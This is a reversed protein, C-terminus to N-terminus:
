LGRERGVPLSMEFITVGTSGKQTFLLKGDLTKGVLTGPTTNTKALYKGKSTFKHVQTSLSKASPTRIGVYVDGEIQFIHSITPLTDWAKRAAVVEHMDPLLPLMDITIFKSTGSRLDVIWFGRAIRDSVFLSSQTESDLTVLQLRAHQREIQQKDGTTDIFSRLFKGNQLDYEHVLGICESNGMGDKTRCGALYKRGYAPKLLVSQVSFTPNMILDSGALSGDLGFKSIRAQGADDAWILNNSDITFGQLVSYKGPGRGVEGIQKILHGDNSYFEIAQGPPSKTLDQAWLVLGKEPVVALGMVTSSDQKRIVTKKTVQLQLVAETASLVSHVTTLLSLILLCKDLM